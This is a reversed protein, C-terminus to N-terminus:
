KYIDCIWTLIEMKACPDTRVPQTLNLIGFSRRASVRADSLCSCLSPPQNLKRYKHCMWRYIAIVWFDVQGFFFRFLTVALLIFNIMNWLRIKWLKREIYYASARVLRSLEAAKKRRLKWYPASPFIWKKKRKKRYSVPRHKQLLKKTLIDISM